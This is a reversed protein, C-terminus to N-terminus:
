MVEIKRTGGALAMLDGACSTATVTTPKFGYRSEDDLEIDFPSLGQTAHIAVCIGERDPDYNGTHSIRVRKGVFMKELESKTMSREKDKFPTRVTVRVTGIISSPCAFTL